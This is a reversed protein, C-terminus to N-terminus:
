KKNYSWIYGYSTGQKGLACKSLASRGYGKVREAESTSEYEAVLEGDLTYQYIIKKNDKRKFAALSKKHKAQETSNNLKVTFWRLNEVRNDNRIGNIHDIIPLNEPNPIFALAVLQHVGVTSEKGGKHIGVRCYGDKDLYQKLQRGRRLALSGGKSPLYVDLSRVNGWDSVEYLGEYGVVPKWEEVEKSM